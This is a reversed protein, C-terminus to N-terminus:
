ITWNLSLPEADLPRSISSLWVVQGMYIKIIEGFFLQITNINMPM